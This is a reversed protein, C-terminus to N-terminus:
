IEEGDWAGEESGRTRGGVERARHPGWRRVCSEQLVGGGEQCRAEELMTQGSSTM